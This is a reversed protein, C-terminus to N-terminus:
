WRPGQPIESGKGNGPKAIAEDEDNRTSFVPQHTNPKQFLTSPQDAFFVGFAFDLSSKLNSTSVSLFPLLNLCSASPIM